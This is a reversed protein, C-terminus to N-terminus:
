EGGTLTRYVAYGSGSGLAYLEATSSPSVSVDVVNYTPFPLQVWTVGGDRSKSLGNSYGSNAYLTDHAGPDVIIRGAQHNLTTWNGGGDSSAYCGGNGCTYVRAPAVPDITVSNWTGVPLGMGAPWTTGGDSSHRVLDGGVYVIGSPDVAVGGISAAAAPTVSSWSSGGGTGHWVDKNTTVWVNAPASPDVAVSTYYDARLPLATFGVGDTAKFVGNSTALYVTSPATPDFALDSPTTSFIQAFTKAGDTSRFLGYGVLYVIDPNTPHVYVRSAYYPSSPMGRLEWATMPLVYQGSTLGPASATATVSGTADVVLGGFTGAGSATTTMTPGSWSVGAPLSLTVTAPAAGAVVNGGGDVLAVPLDFPAGRVPAVVPGLKVAVAAGVVVDFPQSVPYTPTSYAQLKYGSCAQDITINTFTAIGNQLTANASYTPSPNCGSPAQVQVSASGNALLDVDGYPDEFAVRPPPSMPQHATATTPQTAFVIQMGAARIPMSEGSAVGPASAVLTYQGWRDLVLGDFQATGSTPLRDVAGGLTGAPNTAAGLAVSIIPHADPVVLGSAADVVSVQISFPTGAAVNSPPTGFRLALARSAALDSPATALDVPPLAFDFAPPAAMDTSAGGLDTSPPAALDTSDSGGGPAGALDGGGPLTSRDCGAAPLLVVVALPVLLAARRRM